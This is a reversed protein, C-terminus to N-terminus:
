RQHRWAYDGGVHASEAGDTDDSPVDAAYAAADDVPHYGLARGPELDWWADSNASIGYLVAFGVDPATLAAEVMRVCDGPSLWTSLHRTSRPRQQFSGIRMAVAEIGHQDAYLSLLAETAIKAIGYNTDPRPRVDTGVLDQRPTLGVAHNSSAYAIRRAGTDLMADLLVKTTVVHSDLSEEITTETPFGALHVVGSRGDVAESVLAPDACDGTFWTAQDAPEGRPAIRDLAAVDHGLEDLGAVVTRGVTGAAGTVLVRM